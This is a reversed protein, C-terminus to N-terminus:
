HSRITRKAQTFISNHKAWIIEDNFIWGEAMMAIVFRHPIANYHGELVAEGLNVWLSGNDKLVRKCDSMDRVLGKIFTDVDNELGRQDSGTGYDRM